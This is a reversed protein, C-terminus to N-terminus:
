EKKLSHGSQGVRLAPDAADEADDAGGDEGEIGRLFLGYGRDVRELM